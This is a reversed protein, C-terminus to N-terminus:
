EGGDVLAAGAERNALRGSFLSAQKDEAPYQPYTAM